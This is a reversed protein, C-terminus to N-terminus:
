RLNHSTASSKYTAWIGGAILWVAGAILISPRLGAWIVFCVIAGALPPLYGSLRRERERWAHLLAALNVGIFAVFAGFLLLEAGWQYGICYGCALAPWVLQGAYVRSM